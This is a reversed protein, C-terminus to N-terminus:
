NSLLNLETGVKKLTDDVNAVFVCGQTLLMIDPLSECKYKLSVDIAM